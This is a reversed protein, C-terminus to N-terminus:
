LCVSILSWVKMTLRGSFCCTHATYCDFSVVSILQCSRWDRKLEGKDARRQFRPFLSSFQTLLLFAAQSFIAWDHPLHQQKSTEREKHYFLSLHQGLDASCHPSLNNLGVNQEWVETQGARGAVLFLDFRPQWTLTWGKYKHEHQM